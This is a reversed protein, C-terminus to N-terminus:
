ALRKWERFAAIREVQHIFDLHTMKGKLQNCPWCSSACNDFEYGRSPDLRDITNRRRGGTHMRVAPPAGCFSCPSHILSSFEAQSLTFTLGPRKRRNANAYRRWEVADSKEPTALVAKTVAERWALGHHPNSAMWERTLIRACVLNCARQKRNKPRFISGCVVCASDPWERPRGRKCSHGGCSQASGRVLAFGSAVRTAGCDCRCLWRGGGLHQEVQLKAFKRNNLVYKLVQGM